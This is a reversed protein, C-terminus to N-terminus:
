NGIHNMTVWSQRERLQRPKNEFFCFFVLRKKQEEMVKNPRGIKTMKGQSDNMMKTKASEEM